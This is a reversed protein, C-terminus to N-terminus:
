FHMLICRAPAGDSSVLKIPLCHLMYLGPQVHELVLGEVQVIGQLLCSKLQCSRKWFKSSAASTLRQKLAGASGCFDCESESSGSRGPLRQQGAPSSALMRPQHMWSKCWQNQAWMHQALSPGARLLRAFVCLCRVKGLMLQHGVTNDDWTNVSLYDLGVLQWGTNEVIWRAGSESISTYDYVFEPQYMLRRCVRTMKVSVCDHKLITGKNLLVVDGPDWCMAAAQRATNLTKFIIRAVGDPVHLAEM